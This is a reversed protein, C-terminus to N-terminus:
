AGIETTSNLQESIAPARQTDVHRAGLLQVCDLM